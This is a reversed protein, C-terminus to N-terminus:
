ALVAVVFDGTLDEVVMPGRACAEVLANIKAAIDAFNNNLTAQSFAGGVDALTGDATGTTSDTILTPTVASKVEGAGAGVLRDGVLPTEGTKVPFKLAGKLMVTGVLIGEQVRNEVVELRGLITDGDAALKVTNAASTDVSVAKGVDSATIGAALNFPFAFEEVFINQLSVGAGIAM